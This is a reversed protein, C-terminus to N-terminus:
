PRREQHLGLVFLDLPGEGGHLLVDLLAPGGQGGGALAIGDAMSASESSTSAMAAATASSLAALEAGRQLVELAKWTRDVGQGELSREAGTRNPSPVM